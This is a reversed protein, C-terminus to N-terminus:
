KNREIATTRNHNQKRERLKGPLKHFFIQCTVKDQEGSINKVRVHLILYKTM